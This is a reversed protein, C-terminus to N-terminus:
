PIIAVFIDCGETCISCRLATSHLKVGYNPLVGPGQTVEMPGDGGEDRSLLFRDMKRVAIINLVQSSLTRCNSSNLIDACKSPVLTLSKRKPKPLSDARM